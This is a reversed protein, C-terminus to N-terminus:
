ADLATLLPRSFQLLCACGVCVALRPPHITQRNSNHAQGRQVRVQRTVPCQSAFMRLLQQLKSGEPAGALNGYSKCRDKRRDFPGPKSSELELEFVGPSFTTIGDKPACRVPLLSPLLQPM